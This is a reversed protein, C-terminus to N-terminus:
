SSDPATGAPMETEAPTQLPERGATGTGPGSDTTPALCEVTVTARVDFGVAGDGAVSVEVPRRERPRTCTVEVTAQRGPALSGIAGDGDFVARGDDVARQVSVAPDTVTVDDITIPEGLGNQIKLVAATEGVVVGSGTETVGVFGDEDGVVSVSASREVGTSSASMTGSALLLAAVLAAGVVLM